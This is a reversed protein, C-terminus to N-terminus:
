CRPPRFVRELHSDPTAIRLEWLRWAIVRANALDNLSVAAVSFGFSVPGSISIQGGSTSSNASRAPAPIPPEEETEEPQPPDASVAMAEASLFIDCVDCWDTSEDAFDDVVFSAHAQSVSGAIVILFVVRFVRDRLHFNLFHNGEFQIRPSRYSGVRVNAMFMWLNDPDIRNGVNPRM